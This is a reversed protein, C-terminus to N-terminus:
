SRARPPRGGARAGRGDSRGRAGRRAGSRRSPTPRRGAITSEPNPSEEDEEANRAVDVRVLEEAKSSSEDHVSGAAPIEALLATAAERLATLFAREATLLSDRVAPTNPGDRVGVELAKRLATAAELGAMLTSPNAVARFLSKTRRELDKQLDEPHPLVKRARARSPSAQSRSRREPM